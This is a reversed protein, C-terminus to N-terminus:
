IYKSDFQQPSFRQCGTINTIFFNIQNRHAVVVTTNEYTIWMEDFQYIKLCYLFTRWMCCRTCVNWTFQLQLSFSFPRVCTFFLHLCFEEFCNVIFYEWLTSYILKFIFCKNFVNFVFMLNWVFVKTVFACKPEPKLYVFCLPVCDDPIHFVSFLVVWHSECGVPASDEHSVCM